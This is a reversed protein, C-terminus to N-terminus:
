TVTYYKNSYKSSLEKDYDECLIYFLYTITIQNEIFSYLNALIENYIINQINVSDDYSNTIKILLFIVNPNKKVLEDIKKFICKKLMKTKDKLEAYDFIKCYLLIGNIKTDLLGDLNEKLEEVLVKKSEDPLETWHHYLWYQDITNATSKNTIITQVRSKLEEETYKASDEREKLVEITRHETSSELYDSLAIRGNPDAMLMDFNSSMYNHFINLLKKDKIHVMIKKVIYKGFNDTLVKDVDSKMIKLFVLEKSASNGYKLCAQVLRSGANKVIVNDIGYEDVILLSREIFKEKDEGGTTKSLISQSLTTLNQKNNGEPNFKKRKQFSQDHGNQAGFSGRGRSGRDSGRHGGRDQFNQFPKRKHLGGRDASGEGRYGGRGRGREGGRPSFSGRSGRRAGRSGGEDLSRERGRYHNNGGRNM